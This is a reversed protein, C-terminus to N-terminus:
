PHSKSRQSMPGAIPGHSGKAELCRPDGAIVGHVEDRKQPRPLRKTAGSGRTGFNVSKFLHRTNSSKWMQGLSLPHLWSKIYKLVPHAHCHAQIRRSSTNNQAIQTTQRERLLDCLRLCFVFATPSGIGPCTVACVQALCQLDTMVAPVAPVAASKKGEAAKQLRRGGLNEGCCSPQSSPM